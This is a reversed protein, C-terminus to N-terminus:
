DGLARAREAAAILRPLEKTAAIRKGGAVGGGCPGDSRHDGKFVTFLNPNGDADVSKRGHYARGPECYVVVKQGIRQYAAGDSKTDPTVYKVSVVIRRYIASPYVGPAPRM